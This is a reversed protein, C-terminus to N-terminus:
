TCKHDNQTFQVHDMERSITELRHLMSPLQQLPEELRELDLPTQVLAHALDSSGPSSQYSPTEFGYTVVSHYDTLPTFTDTGNVSSMVSQFDTDCFSSETAREDQLSISASCDAARSRRKEKDYTSQVSQRSARTSYVCPLGAKTCRGCKTQFHKDGSCKLKQSHCRDCSRRLARGGASDRNITPMQESQAPGEAVTWIPGERDFPLSYNYTTDTASLPPLPYNSDAAVPWSYDHNM